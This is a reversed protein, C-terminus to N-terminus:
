RWDVIAKPRWPVHYFTEEKPYGCMLACAIHYGKPFDLSQKIGPLYECLGALYGGWCSGIGCKRLLLELTTMAIIGDTDGNLIKNPMLAFIIASCGCTVSDHNGKRRQEVLEPLIGATQCGDVVRHYLADCKEKGYLVLWRVPRFNKGSPAWQAMDLAWALDEPDPPEEQFHRNSRRTLILQLTEDEPMEPYEEYTPVFDFHIAKKPCAAACHMCQLCNRNDYIGPHVPGM